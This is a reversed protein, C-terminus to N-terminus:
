KKDRSSLSAHLVPDHRDLGATDEAAYIVLQIEAQYPDIRQKAHMRRGVTHGPAPKVNGFM